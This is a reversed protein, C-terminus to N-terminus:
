PICFDIWSGLYDLRDQQEEDKYIAEFEEFSLKGWGGRQRAEEEALDLRKWMVLTDRPIPTTPNAADKEEVSRSGNEPDDGSSLSGPGPTVAGGSSRSDPESPQSATTPGPQAAMDALSNPRFQPMTPDHYESEEEAEELVRQAAEAEVYEEEDAEDIRYRNGEPMELSESSTAVESSKDEEALNISEFLHRHKDRENKTEANRISMDEKAKFLIDLLENFAQQTVQYLIEKGADREADPIEVGGWREPVSRSSTSPNSRIDFDDTDEAFRVKSSSRSRPSLVQSHATKSSEAAVNTHALVDEADKWGEPPAGGEEEDLYFQRRKWREHLIKRAEIRAKRLSRINHAVHAQHLARPQSETRNTWRDSSPRSAAWSTNGDDEPHAMDPADPQEGGDELGPQDDSSQGGSEDGEEANHEQGEEQNTALVEGIILNESEGILLRPLMGISGPPDLLADLYPSSAQAIPSQPHRPSYSDPAFFHCHRSGPYSTFLSTLIDERKSTDPKDESVAGANEDTLLVDGNSHYVKGEMPRGQDAQPVRGERGFLSSLPQRSSVLQHAETSSMVQDDLGELIDKHMQKYLVYYARFIRLFDRRNVLGDRDVDYGEFVKKLKDKRKRYSLGHLFESFGILDDNNTDYFAFMRDYILNPATHRYGGSPVLCREFTKRDMAVYLDDPDERWETNAIFTWQEWFAELEPREFGTEKSLKAILTRPLGRACTDPDGPYWVPQMQRPGFPPAPIRVKYFIHTKIHLGQSECTECLDFDACNACRYRIGRIPVIGCANCACGRHVFASRRASDESVRFLLGVINQGTRQHPVRSPDDWWNEDGNDDAVTEAGDVQIRVTDIDVNEDAQWYSSASSAASDRRAQTQQEGQDGRDGRHGQTSRRARRVANSRHLHGANSGTSRASRAEGFLYYGVYAAAVVTIVALTIRPRALASASSSSPDM